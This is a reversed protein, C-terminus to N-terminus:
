AASEEAAPVFQLVVRNDPRIVEGAWHAAEEATVSLLRPLTENVLEPADFLTTFQSFADARGDVSTLHHLWGSTLLSRARELEDESAVEVACDLGLALAEEHRRRAPDHDEDEEPLTLTVADAVDAARDVAISARWLIPLRTADRLRGPEGNVVLAEARQAEAARAADADEVAAVVSIGDGEAIAHSFRRSAM